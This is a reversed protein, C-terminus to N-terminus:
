RRPYRWTAGGESMQGLAVPRTPPPLAWRLFRPCTTSVRQNVTSSPRTHPSHGCGEQVTLKQLTPTPPCGGALVRARAGLANAGNGRLERRSREPGPVPQSTM